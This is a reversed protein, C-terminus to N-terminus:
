KREYVYVGDPGGDLDIATYNLAEFGKNAILWDCIENIDSGSESMSDVCEKIEIASLKQKHALLRFYYGDSAAFTYIYM